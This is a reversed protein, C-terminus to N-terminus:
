ADGVLAGNQIGGTLTWLILSGPLSSQTLLLIEPIEYIRYEIVARFTCIIAYYVQKM